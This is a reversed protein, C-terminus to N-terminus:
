IKKAAALRSIETMEPAFVEEKMRRVSRKWDFHRALPQWGMGDHILNIGNILEREVDLQSRVSCTDNDGMLLVQTGFDVSWCAFALQEIKMGVPLECEGADVAAQYHAFIPSLLSVETQQHQQCRFESAKATCGATKVTVGIMFDQPNAQSNLLSGVHVALAKERSTGNFALARTFVSAVQAMHVNCLALIIDEKSTFHNYVTGKSYPLKKVLKDITLAAEGENRIIGKACDLMEQERADKEPRSFVKPSMINNKKSSGDFIIM